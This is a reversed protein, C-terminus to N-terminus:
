PYRKLNVKWRIFLLCITGFIGAGVLAAMLLPGPKLLAIAAVVSVWNLVLLLPISVTRLKDVFMFEIIEFIVRFSLFDDLDM